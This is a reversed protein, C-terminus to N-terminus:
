SSRSAVLKLEKIRKKAYVYVSGLRARSHLPLMGKKKYRARIINGLKELVYLNDSEKLLHLKYSEEIFLRSNLKALNFLEYKQTPEHSMINKLFRAFLGVRYDIDSLCEDIIRKKADRPAQLLCLMIAKKIKFNTEKDFLNQIEKRKESSLEFFSLVILSNMRIAWSLTSDIANSFLVKELDGPKDKKHMFVELLRTIQYDFLEGSNILNLVKQPIKSGGSFVKFYKVIKDTLVPNDQLAIFCRYSLVAASVHTFGTLLRKFFRVKNKPIEGRGLKSAFYKLRELYKLRNRSLMGPNCQEVDLIEDVLNNLDNFDPDSIFNSFSAKKYIDTKAGQINLQLDRLTSNMIFLAEKAYKKEKAFIKVDDMYRIYKIKKDREMQLLRKDLPLLFINGLFSSIDNGQPIGRKIKYGDPLPMTWDRLFEMLLNVEYSKEYEKELTRRLVEHNINEFYSTIDSVVLFNYGESEIIKTVEKDFSPWAEYWEEFRKIERRKEAPLLPNDRHVLLSENPERYRPNLRFSYVNEPLKKDLKDVMSCIISFLVVFDLFEVIAGPRTTLGSKPIDIQLIQHCRYEKNKLRISIEALLQKSNHVFDQHRFFDPIFFRKSADKALNLALRLRSIEYFKQKETHQTSSLGSNTTLVLNLDNSFSDTKHEM